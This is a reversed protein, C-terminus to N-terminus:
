RPFKSFYLIELRSGSATVEKLESTKMRGREQVSEMVVGWGGDGDWGWGGPEATDLSDSEGELRLISHLKIVTGGWDAGCISTFNDWIVDTHM